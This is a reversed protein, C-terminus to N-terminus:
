KRHRVALSYKLAIESDKVKKRVFHYNINGRKDDEHIYTTQDQSLGFYNLLLRVWIGEQLVLHTAINEAEMSSLPVIPQMNSALSIGGRMLITEETIMSVDKLNFRKRESQQMTHWSKYSTKLLKEVTEM